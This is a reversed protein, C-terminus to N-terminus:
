PTRGASKALYKKLEAADGTRALHDLAADYGPDPDKWAGSALLRAVQQKLEAVEALLAQEQLATM